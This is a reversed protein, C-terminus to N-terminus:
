SEEFVKLANCHKIVTTPFSVQEDRIPLAIEYHGGDDKTISEKVKMLWQEDEMSPGMEDQNSDEFESNYMRRLKVDIDNWEVSVRNVSVVNNRRQTSLPGNLAWGLHHKSAYPGFVPGSVIELPRIAQPVNAGIMLGVNAEVHCFPVDALYAWHKLEDKTVLDSRTVPLTKRSFTTPLCISENEDLDLVELGQVAMTATQQNQCNMTTLRIQSSVGRIGLEKILDDLIFCDTAFNDLGAYTIVSKSQGKVRVKVPILALAVKPNSGVEKECELVTSDLCCASTSDKLGKDSM